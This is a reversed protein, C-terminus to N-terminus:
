QVTLDVHMGGAYHGPINCIIAYHGAPLNVTLDDTAGAALDEVEDVVELQAEDVEGNAQPLGSAATDTDVVVFEHTVTGSNRIAFTTEGPAITNKDLTIAFEKEDAAITTGGSAASSPRSSTGAGSSCAIVTILLAM